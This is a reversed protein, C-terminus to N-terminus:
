DCITVLWDFKLPGNFQMRKERAVRKNVSANKLTRENTLEANSFCHWFMELFTLCTSLSESKETATPIGLDSAIKLFLFIQLECGKETKNVLLFDDVYHQTLNVGTENEFIWHLANSFMCFSFSSSRWGFPLMTDFNNKELHEYGLLHWNLLRVPNVRFAHKIDLKAM